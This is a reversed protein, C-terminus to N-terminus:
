PKLNKFPIPVGLMAKWTERQPGSLISLAVEALVEDASEHKKKRSEAHREIAAKLKAIQAHDLHMDRAITTRSLASPGEWQLDIQALRANQEPSLRSTIWTFAEDDVARRARLTEPNKPKDRLSHAQVYLNRIAREASSTQEASLNLDTRVDPRSLLLLPNVRSGLRFNPLPPEDGAFANSSILSAILLTLRVLRTSGHRM